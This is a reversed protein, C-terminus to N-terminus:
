VLMYVAEEYSLNNMFHHKRVFQLKKTSHYKIRNGTIKKVSNINILKYSVTNMVVHYISNSIYVITMDVIM